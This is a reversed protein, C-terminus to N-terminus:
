LRIKLIMVIMIIVLIIKIMILPLLMLKVANSIFYYVSLTVKPKVTVAAAIVAPVITIYNITLIM